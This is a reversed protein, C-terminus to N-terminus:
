IRSIDKAVLKLDVKLHAYSSMLWIAKWKCHIKKGPKVEKKKRKAAKLNLPRNKSVNNLRWIVNIGHM